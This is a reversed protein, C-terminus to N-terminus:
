FTEAATAPFVACGVFGETSQVNTVTVNIDAAHVATCMATACAASCIALYRPSYWRQHNSTNM